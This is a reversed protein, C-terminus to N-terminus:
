QIKQFNLDKIIKEAIKKHGSPAMHCLDDWCDKKSVVRTDVVIAGEMYESLLLRQFEKYKSPYNKNPNESCLDPNFGTLVVCKVNLKDCIRAIGKINDVAHQPKISSSYMDNAGGYVFCYNFKDNLKYVAMNLMWYTTRGSESPNVQQLGTLKCLQTQWGNARNSTHSDGIFLAHKNQVNVLIPTDLQQQIPKIYTPKSYLIFCGLGLCLTIFLIINKIKM